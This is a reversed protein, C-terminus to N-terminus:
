VNIVIVINRALLITSYTLPEEQYSYDLLVKRQNTARADYILTM